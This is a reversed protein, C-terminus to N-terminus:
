DGMLSELARVRARLARLEDLLDLALAAGEVNLNLDTQLRAFTMVRCLSEGSFIWEGTSGPSPEIVGHDVLGMVAEAHLGSASCLDRLTLRMEQNLLLGEDLPGRRARPM